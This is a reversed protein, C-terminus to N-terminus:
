ASFYLTGNISIIFNPEVEARPEHRRLALAAGGDLAQLTVIVWLKPRIQKVFRLFHEFICHKAMGKLGRPGFIALVTLQLLVVARQQVARPERRAARRQLTVARDKQVTKCPPLILPSHLFSSSFRM